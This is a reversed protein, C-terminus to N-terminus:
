WSFSVEHPPLNKKLMGVTTLMVKTKRMGLFESDILCVRHWRCIFTGHVCRCAPDREAVGVTANEEFVMVAQVILGLLRADVMGDRCPWESLLRIIRRRLAGNRCFTGTFALMECESVSFSFAFSRSGTGQGPQQQQQKKLQQRRLNSAPGYHEEAFDVFRAVEPEVADWGMEGADPDLQLVIEVVMWIIRLTVIADADAATVHPSALFADFKAKWARFERFYGVQSSRMPKARVLAPVGHYRENHSVGALLPQLETYADIASAYPVDSCAHAHRRWRWEPITVTRLRNCFQMEFHTFVAGLAKTTVVCDKKRTGVTRATYIDTDDTALPSDERDQIASPSSASSSSHKWFEWQHFLRTGGRAHELAQMHDEQLASLGTFLTSALLITEKEADSLESKEGLSLLEAIAANYEKLAFTRNQERSARAAETQATISVARFMAALALGAHWIAPYVQTARM